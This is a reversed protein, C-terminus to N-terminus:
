LVPFLQPIQHDRGGASHREKGWVIGTKEGCGIRVQGKGSKEESRHRRDVGLPIPFSGTM